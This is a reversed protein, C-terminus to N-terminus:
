GHSYIIAAEDLVNQRFYPSLDQPTRLDVPRNLLDSLELEMQSLKFLGVRNDPDFAVLLDVDSNPQANGHLYSGFVSLSRVGNRKCFAIIKARHLNVNLTESM